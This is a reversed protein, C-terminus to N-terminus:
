SALDELEILKQLQSYLSQDEPRASKTLRLQLAELDQAQDIDSIEGTEDDVLKDLMDNLEYIKDEAMEAALLGGTMAGLTRVFPREHMLHWLREAGMRALTHEIKVSGRLNLVQEASYNRQIGKWRPNTAWAQELQRIQEAKTM